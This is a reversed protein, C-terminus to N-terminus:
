RRPRRSGWGGGMWGWGGDLGMTSPRKQSSHAGEWKGAAIPKSPSKLGSLRHCAAMSDPSATEKISARPPPSELHSQALMMEKGPALGALQLGWEQGARCAMRPPAIMAVIDCMIHSMTAWSLIAMRDQLLTASRLPAVPLAACRSSRGPRPCGCLWTLIWVTVRALGGADRALM